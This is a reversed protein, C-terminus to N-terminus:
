NGLIPQTVDLYLSTLGLFVILLFVAYTVPMVKYMDVMQRRGTIKSKIAEYTAIAAHGGDLPPLPLMNFFGVFINILVLLILVDSLGNRGTEGAVQVLGVPSLFRPADVPVEKGMLRKGYDSVGSFSFIGGLAKVTEKTLRGFDGAATTVAGFGSATDVPFTPALGIFGIPETPREAKPLKAIAEKVEPLQTRDIPTATLTVEQGGREVVFTVPQGARPQVHEPVQEWASVRTGDVEVIRDGARFGAEIAPSEGTELKSIESIVPTAQADPRLASGMPTGTDIGVVGVLLLLLLFALLFHTASGASVVVLRQWYGQQRYTRPEDEPEVEELSNMGVIKVYGGAPIAKIGYETEGKRVSWIRPGFGLFFETVKMGAWKATLFHGLEHLMIMLIVAFIVGVTRLVGFASSGAVLVVIIALLRVMGKRREAVEDDTLPSLGHPPAGGGPAADLRSTTETM